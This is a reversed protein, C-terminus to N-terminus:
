WEITNQNYDMFSGNVFKQPNLSIEMIGKASTEPAISYPSNWVRKGGMSTKVWGPHVSFIYRGKERSENYFIRTAMNAAAKSMCYGYEGSRRCSGISGAESTINIIVSGLPLIKDARQLMRLIGLANVNYIYLCKDIDINKLCGNEEEYWMGAVNYLIDIEDVAQCIDDFARGVSKTDSIDCQCIYLSKAYELSLKLLEESNHRVCAWVEDNRKLHEEALALAIGKNAGTIIVRKM